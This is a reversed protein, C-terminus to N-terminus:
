ELVVEIHELDLNTQLYLLYTGAPLDTHKWIVLHRGRKKQEAEIIEICNGNLDYLSLECYTDSKLELQITSLGDSIKSTQILQGNGNEDQTEQGYPVRAFDSCLDFPHINEDFCTTASANGSFVSVFIALGYIMPRAVISRAKM